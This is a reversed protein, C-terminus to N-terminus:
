KSISELRSVNDPRKIIRGTAADREMGNDYIHILKGEREITELKNAM